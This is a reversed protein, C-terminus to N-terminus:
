TNIVPDVGHLIMGVPRNYLKLHFRPLAFASIERGMAVYKSHLFWTKDM